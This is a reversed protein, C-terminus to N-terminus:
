ARRRRAFFAAGAALLLMSVPEPTVVVSANTLSDFSFVTGAADNWSTIYGLKVLYTGPTQPAQLTLTQLRVDTTQNAAASKTMGLDKANRPHLLGNDGWNILGQLDADTLGGVNIPDAICAPDGGCAESLTQTQVDRLKNQTSNTNLVRDLIKFGASTDEVLFISLGAVPTATTAGTMQVDLTFSGGPAIGGAPVQNQLALNIAGFASPAVLLVAIAAVKWVLKM